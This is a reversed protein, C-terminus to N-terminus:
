SSRELAVQEESLKKDIGQHWSDVHDYLPMLGRVPGCGLQLAMREISDADLTYAVETLALQRLAEEAKHEPMDLVPSSFGLQEAIKRTRAYLKNGGSHKFVNGIQWVALAGGVEKEPVKSGFDEMLSREHRKRKDEVSELDPEFPFKKELLIFSGIAIRMTEDMWRMLVVWVSGVIRDIVASSRQLHYFLESLEHENSPEPHEAARGEHLSLYTDSLLKTAEFFTRDIDQILIRSIELSQSLHNRWDSRTACRLYDPVPLADKM